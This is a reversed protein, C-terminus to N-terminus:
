AVTVEETLYVDQIANLIKIGEPMPKQFAKRGSILGTGGARKNIVATRVAQQLDNQGSEGGSNILGARGMYCNAVQYRTLDIPHDTTLESYVLKSTKGYPQDKALVNYGGNNTPMKQKIIDAEITVGLHNAQGTLDAAAHYDAEKTKFASNRLYCWLVTFMGLEHAHAFAQTVEQIQRKSEESGFYITAGVGVCGQDFAQDVSAFMIQDYSNPYSLFENHNFKLIFPIKHAYKRAVSGLVGLTTAVANCGGEIALRIINEPDFYQPNPAFSAGGSHEIGQDVPLISLYGTGALRGSNFMTSLNRLVVPSRDTSVAVRDIFDPGPLHLMEKPITRSQYTLLSEAEDGLIEEIQRIM